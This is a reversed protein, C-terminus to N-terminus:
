WQFNLSVGAWRPRGYFYQGLGFSANNAVTTVYEEDAINKVFLSATWNEDAGTYSIQANGVGYGGIEGLPDNFVQYFVSSQYNVDGQIAMSGNGVPWSYRALLNAQVTPANALERDAVFGGGNEINEIETDMINIGVLIDLGDIPSVRLESDIGVVTADRNILISSLALFAFAQFSEYDYYYASTNWQVRGSAATTKFGAEYTLPKERGVPISQFNAPAGFIANFSGAKIGRSIGAYLLLDDNANYNLQLKGAVDQEDIEALPSISTNFEAFAGFTSGSATMEKNEDLYRLGAILTWDDSFDYEFQGFVSWNTTEVQQDTFFAGPGFFGVDLVINTEYDLFYLGTVWRSKDTQGALRIEQSLQRANTDTGFTVVEIPTGDSDQNFFKNHDTYGSISTVTMDNALSWNMTLATKVSDIQLGPQAQGRAAVGPNADLNVTFPDGDAADNFGFADCGNCSPFGFVGAWVNQDAPVRKAFGDVPDIYAPVSEYHWQNVDTEAYEVKFVADFADSPQFLLQGRVAYTNADNGDPGALNDIYEDHRNYFGSIRASVTDSLGGGAAGEFRVHTNSAFSFNTYASVEDTPKRSIYHILGATANRGFLTGQPGRLIEVRDVDFLTSTTAGMYADYVGDSYIAVPSEQHDNFDGIGIGRMYLSTINGEGGVNQLSLGPTLNVLENTNNLSFRELQAGSFATISIGVDQVNQERKQATVIIEELLVSQINVDQAVAPSGSLIAALLATLGRKKKENVQVGEPGSAPDAAISLVLKQQFTPTLGTGQLLIDVADEILYGGVLRNATKGRVLEDPFVMTLDAQEAFQTLALDARQQPIDFIVVKDTTEEDAWGISGISLLM